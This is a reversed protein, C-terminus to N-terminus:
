AATDLPYKELLPKSPLCRQSSYSIVKVNTIFSATRGPSCYIKTFYTVKEQLHNAQEM